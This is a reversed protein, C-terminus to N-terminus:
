TLTLWNAFGVLAADPRRSLRLLAQVTERVRPHERVHQPAIQRAAQLSALSQDRHGAWLEATALDIHFHSRREGPLEVPPVWDKAANLASAGDGLEVAVAVEHIRVSSSGFATGLYVGERVRAASRRAEALHSIAEDANRGRAAVVAARMHLSGYTAMSAMSRDPTVQSAAQGLAQSASELDGTAFFTETHVYATAAGVLENQLQGSMRRMLEIIWSSLDLYGFKYAIGDAARLGQVLLETAREKDTGVLTQAARALESLVEPLEDSLRAYHSGLRYGVLMQTADTLLDLPRILGDEPHDLSGIIRRLHPIAAHVQSQTGAFGIFLEYEDMSLSRAIAKRVNGTAPRSNQEIKRLLSVSIGSLGALQQQTLGKRVRAAAIRRGADNQGSPPM